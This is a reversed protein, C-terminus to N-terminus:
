GEVCDLLCELCPVWGGRLGYKFCSAIETHSGGVQYTSEIHMAYDKQAPKGPKPRWEQIGDPLFHDPSHQRRKGLICLDLQYVEPRFHDDESRRREQHAVFETEFQDALASIPSSDIQRVPRGNNFVTKKM